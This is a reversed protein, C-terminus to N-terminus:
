QLIVGADEQADQPVQSWELHWHDGGRLGETVVNPDRKTEDGLEDWTLNGGDIASAIVAPDRRAIIDLQDWTVKGLTLAEKIVVAFKQLHNPVESWDMSGARLREVAFDAPMMFEQPMFNQPMFNQPAINQPALYQPVFSPQVTSERFSYHPEVHQPVINQPEYIQPAYIHPVYTQQMQPVVSQPVQPLKYVPEASVSPVDVMQSKMESVKEAASSSLEEWAVKGLDYAELLAAPDKDALQASWMLKGPPSLDEWNVDSGDHVAAAILALENQLRPHVEGWKLSHLHENFAQSVSQLAPSVEHELQMKLSVLPMVEVARLKLAEAEVLDQLALNGAAVAAAAFVSLNLM